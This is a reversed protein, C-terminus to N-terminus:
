SGLWSQVLMYECLYVSAVIRCQVATSRCWGLIVVKAETSRSSKGFSSFAECQYFGRENPTAEPIVFVNGIAKPGVIAKGDKYWRISPTPNGTASCSLTVRDHLEVTMNSPNTTVSPVTRNDVM